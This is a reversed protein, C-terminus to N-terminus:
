AAEVKVICEVPCVTVCQPSDHHGECEVCTAQDIVYLYLEKKSGFFYFLTGKPIGARKIIANTSAQTFGNQAFETICAELIREQEEIPIRTFNDPM